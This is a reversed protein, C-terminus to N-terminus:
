CQVTVLKIISNYLAGNKILQMPPSTLPLKIYFDTQMNMEFTQELKVQCITGYILLEM